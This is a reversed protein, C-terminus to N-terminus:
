QIAAPEKPGRTTLAELAKVKGNDRAGTKAGVVYASRLQNEAAYQDAADILVWCKSTATSISLEMSAGGGHFKVAEREVCDEYPDLLTVVRQRQELTPMGHNDSSTACGTTLVAVLAALAIRTSQHLTKM